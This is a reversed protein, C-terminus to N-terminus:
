TQPTRTTRCQRCSRAKPTNDPWGRGGTTVAGTYRPHGQRSGSPHHSMWPSSDGSRWGKHNHRTPPRPRSISNDHPRRQIVSGDQVGGRSTLYTWDGRSVNRSSSTNAHGITITLTLKELNTAHEGDDLDAAAQNIMNELEMRRLGTQTESRTKKDLYNVVHVEEQHGGDCGPRRAFTDKLKEETHTNRVTFCYNELGNKAVIKVKNAEDEDRYSRRKQNKDLWDLADQVAKEIKEKDGSEFKDKLQSNLAAKCGIADGLPHKM